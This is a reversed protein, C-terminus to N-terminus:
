PSPVINRSAGAGKSTSSYELLAKGEGDKTRRKSQFGILSLPKSVLDVATDRAKRGVENINEQTEQLTDTVLGQVDTVVDGVDFMVRINNLFGAPPVSPDM